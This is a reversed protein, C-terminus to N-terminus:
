GCSRRVLCMLSDDLVHLCRCRGILSRGGHIELGGGQHVVVM